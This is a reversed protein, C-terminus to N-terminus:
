RGQWRLEQGPWHARSNGELVWQVQSSRGGTLRSPGERGAAEWEEIGKEGRAEWGVEVSDGRDWLGFIRRMAARYWVSHEASAETELWYECLLSYVQDCGMGSEHWMRDWVGKSVPIFGAVTVMAMYWTESPGGGRHGESLFRKWRLRAQKSSFHERM